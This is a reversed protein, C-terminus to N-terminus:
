SEESAVIKCDGYLTEVISELGSFIGFHDIGGGYWGKLSITLLGAPELLVGM